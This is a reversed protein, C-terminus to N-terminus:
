QVLDFRPESDELEADYLIDIVVAMSGAESYGDLYSTNIGYAYWTDTFVTEVRVTPKLNADLEVAICGSYRQGGITMETDEQGSILNMTDLVAETGAEDLTSVDHVYFGMTCLYEMSALVVSSETQSYVEFGDPIQVTLNGVRMKSGDIEVAEEHTYVKPTCGTFAAGILCLALIAAIMKKM